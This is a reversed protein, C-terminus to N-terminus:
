VPISLDHCPRFGEAGAALLVAVILSFRANQMCYLRMGSVGHRRYKVYIIGRMAGFLLIAAFHWNAMLRLSCYKELGELHHVHGMRLVNGTVPLAPKWSFDMARRQMARM